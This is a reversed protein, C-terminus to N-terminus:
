APVVVSVPVTVNNDADVPQALHYGVRLTARMASTDQQLLNWVISGTDDQIVGTNFIEFRIDQRVGMLVSRWDAVIAEVQEEDWWIPDTRIGLGAVSLPFGAGGVPNAVVADTRARAASYQWGPRVLAGNPAKKGQVAVQEAAALIDAAADVTATVTQDAATAAEVLSAPFSAPADVGFFVARDIRRAFAQALLPKVAGWLDFDSDDVVADPIPIIAAIEEAIIHRHTFTAKTVGKMGTDGNVWYADPAHTLVPVVSDKTTTPVRRGLSLAVSETEVAGVIQEAYQAPIEGASDARSIYDSAAM